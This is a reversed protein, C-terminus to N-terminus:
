FTSDPMEKEEGLVGDCPMGRRQWEGFGAQAAVANSYGAALLEATATMALSSEDDGGVVLRALLPSNLEEAAAASAM